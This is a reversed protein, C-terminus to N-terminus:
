KYMRGVKAKRQKVNWATVADVRSPYPGVYEGCGDSCEIVHGNAFRTFAGLAGCEACRDLIGDTDTTM